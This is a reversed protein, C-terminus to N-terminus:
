YFMARNNPIWLRTKKISLSQWETVSAFKLYYLLISIYCIGSFPLSSSNLVDDNRPQIGSCCQILFKRLHKDLVRMDTWKLETAWDPGVRQSRMSQPMGPKRTWWWSGSSAWVWTWQTPSSMWGEWGRDYGEGGAKLREWWWPKKWHTLEKCWTGFYQLKLKLM